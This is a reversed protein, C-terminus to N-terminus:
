KEDFLPHDETDFLMQQEDRRSTKKTPNKPAPPPKGALEDLLVQYGEPGLLNRAHLHCERWSEEPTQALQWDYFRPGFCERVPQHEKARDDHGLGYDALRLTEPLMWGEGDNQACFADIGQAVDGNCADIKEQLDHFAILSLVTHRQEPHKDKDVRWFGKPPWKSTVANNQSATRPYDCFSLIFRQEEMTMGYQSAIIGDLHCRLRLREHSTLAWQSRWSLADQQWCPAFLPDAYALRNAITDVRGPDPSNPHPLSAEEAVFWNLHLGSCRARAVADFAFSALTATLRAVRHGVVFVPASNGYPFSTSPASIMTRENTSSTVDMFAVRRSRRQLWASRVTPEEMQNRANEYADDGFRKKVEELYSVILSWEYTAQGMLYQPEIQKRNWKINRWVAARGSGSVWGKNSFDLQGVMRGEHVPCAIAPGSPEVELSDRSRGVKIKLRRGNAETFRVEPIEDERLWSDGERSLIVGEPIDARPIPLRDYPPQACRLHWETRGVEGTQLGDEIRAACKAEIPAPKSPDVGLEPWLEEIPKWPGKIWRSYEDPRYGWEEWKPRPPFFKSDNTMHFETAYQVGWGDPGQDGLLVSNAYIKTLVELDRESQIELIARSNPSFQVIRERPYETAYQEGREWDALRRRMFATRIADTRGGKAVIVPNFKFRSDIDFVKERNEFGFLWEWRCHDVFLRRLAGTGNDSYLGSPVILGLRGDQRLLAHAQELFMKYLNLDGSGQHRFSHDADAYGTSEERKQRWREHRRQSDRFSSRGGTGLNFDHHPRGNSDHTVRDGFPFAAYKAWNSQAKFGGNYDLWRREFAAEDTFMQTQKRVAEQKGYGRYLPDRASFFEKSNPKAIDWPPNGLVADFGVSGANFVDPFELEWHFFRHRAALDGVIGRAATSVAGEAMESPLPAEDLRDPPWFWLACWLDFAAMLQQFGDSARLARYRAARQAAQHVGLTHIEQLAREADDHVTAVASLDVKYLLSGGDIFHILDAKVERKRQRIAKTWAEKEFHVGNTHSKDGGEREWAMAPYHLFQDFWAGVLSNGPKVKHELFTFPLNRDLTEIWLSLRALEVALPDLDVGYICREVVYRRLVAKTRLEFDDDGPRCPLAENALFHGNDEAKILDIVARGAHERIRGHKELSVYLAETLFRLAALLFSGSGCAPDCVKLNLIEEPAKPTWQEVPARDDPQGDKGMPPDYALPRLTRHVTPVALQPRTYFTGSGKRTGGWRVLYWEDPLVIKDRPLFRRSARDIAAEYQLRREPTMRGRPKRVLGGVECARRAWAEARTRTTHRVDHQADADEDDDGVEDAGEDADEEVAVDDETEAAEQDAAGADEEASEEDDSSTDGLRELLNKIERDSMGELKPLPLAPQNGVALFVIPQDAPATRLEFDLLGEYLIGIYESDLSSFDVPAPMWTATRGQRIKVKTRTLLDLVDRVQEDSMLDQEAWGTEMVALARSLGDDSKPDGPAFLDGGYEPVPLAEHSCGAHILRFLSLIRPWAAYSGRRRYPSVRELQDRLGGLSYATHYIPNDRPLLGERSEAFLVVVMRMIMRVGARYVDQADLDERHADLVPAHARVMLEVARRVREGLVQSLDSQGKRSDNVASLLPCPQGDEPPTWLAPALLARLGTLEDSPEGESFWRDVDWECFADYDLGAFVLRWQRGNTVVALQEEGQRLWQLVHSIVRKGRGVGLRKENDVFVPLVAGGSGRWLHRPRISEGTVARRSWTTPINSGRLWEGHPRAFGCIAELVFAVFEGRSGEPDDAFTVIRRRLRDEQFGHLPAPDERILNALRQTDLLLGGHRLSDWWNFRDDSM